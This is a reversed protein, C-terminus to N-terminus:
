KRKRQGEPLEVVKASLDWLFGIYNFLTTFDVFKAPAWPWGLEDAIDWILESSYTFDYTGDSLRRSPYRLFIFYDVWKIVAEIGRHLFIRVMADAVRSFIGPSPSAGFNLVHDLHILGKIMVALFPRASPHTPINRFATDVNFVAAQTEEPANAVLLYCESFSGWACQFKKSDIITNISTHSPDIICIEPANCPPNSLDIRSKNKPFSHNVIVRHKDGGHNIVALPATRFHGILSFLLDPDYGHSIRDLSIEEDYKSIIFDEDEQTTYHNPPIFTCALSFCELGCLFGQRLGVPIDSFENLIGADALALEWTDARLKTVIPFISDPAVDPLVMPPIAASPAPTAIHAPQAKSAAQPESMSHSVCLKTGLCNILGNERSTPSWDLQWDKTNKIPTAETVSTAAFVPPPNSPSFRRFHRNVKFDGAPTSPPEQPHAVVEGEVAQVGVVAPQLGIAALPQRLQEMIIPVIHSMKHKYFLHEDFILGYSDDRRGVWSMYSEIIYGRYSPWDQTYDPRAAIVSFFEAFMDACELARVGGPGSEEDEECMVLYKRMGRVFNEQIETFDDTTLYHDKAALMSKQKLRMEGKDTWGIETNYTDTTRTANACAKHTCLALPIYNKFGVKLEKIVSIPLDSTANTIAKSFYKRTPALPQSPVINGQPQSSSNHGLARAIAAIVDLSFEFPIHAAQSSHLHPQQFEKTFQLAPQIAPNIHQM